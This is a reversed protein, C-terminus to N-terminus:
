GSSSVFHYGPVGRVHIEHTPSWGKSPTNLFTKLRVAFRASECGHLQIAAVGAPLRQFRLWKFLGAPDYGAFDSDGSHAVLHLVEGERLAAIPGGRYEVPNSERLRRANESE